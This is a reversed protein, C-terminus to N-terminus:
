LHVLTEKVPLKCWAKMAANHIQTFLGPDYQIQGNSSAFQGEGVLADFSWTNGAQANRRAMQKCNEHYESKCILHDGSSLVAIVLTNWDGSDAV